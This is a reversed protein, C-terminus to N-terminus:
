SAKGNRHAEAYRGFFDAEALVAKEFEDLLVRENPAHINAFGDTTGM